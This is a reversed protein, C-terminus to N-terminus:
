MSLLYLLRDVPRRTRQSRLPNKDKDRSSSVRERRPVVRSSQRKSSTMSYPRSEDNDRAKCDTKDELCERPDHVDRTGAEAFSPISRSPGVDSSKRTGVREYTAEELREFRASDDESFEIDTDSETEMYDSPKFPSVLKLPHEVFRVDSSTIVKGTQLRYLKYTSRSHPIYGVFRVM